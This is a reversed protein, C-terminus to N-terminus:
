GETSFVNGLAVMSLRCRFIINQLAKNEYQEIYASISAQHIDGKPVPQLIGVDDIYVVCADCIDIFTGNVYKIYHGNNKNMYFKNNFVRKM